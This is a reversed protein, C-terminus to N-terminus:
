GTQYELVNVQRRCSPFRQGPQREQDHALARDAQPPKGSMDICRRFDTRDAAPEVAEELMDRQISGQGRRDDDAQLPQSSLLPEKCHVSGVPLEALGRDVNEHDGHDPATDANWQHPRKKWIGPVRVRM